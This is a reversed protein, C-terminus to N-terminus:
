FLYFNVTAGIRCQSEFIKLVAEASRNGANVLHWYWSSFEQVDKVTWQAYAGFSFGKFKLDLGVRVNVGPRYAFHNTAAWRTKWNEIECIKDPYFSFTFIVGAMIYPMLWFPARIGIMPALELDLRGNYSGGFPLLVLDIESMLIHWLMRFSLGYEMAGLINAVVIARQMNGNLENLANQEKKTLGPYHYDQDNVIANYININEIIGLLNSTSVMLGFGMQFRLEDSQQSKAFSLTSFTLILILVISLIRIGKKDM